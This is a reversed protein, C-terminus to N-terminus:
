RKKLELEKKIWNMAIGNEPKTRLKSRIFKSATSLVASVLEKESRNNDVVLMKGPSFVRQFAGINTQVENWSKKVIYEPVQRPRNANRELAVDLSTNVFVMHCDYGINKLMSVQRQVLTLDRGTADVILGLRGEVYKDLQNGTTTKARQRIINRFYEEEDPMKISLNAKKLGSEFANDSNVVKLGTGAFATQTVFTKGSGPGGALFFAKFIGPDYVGENLYERFERLPKAKLQKIIKNAIDKPEGGEAKIEIFGPKKRYYEIVPGTEKKYLAIRNKIIEPKDDARGRATLRRIVEQESVNLFVVKDIKINKNELDKVQQMYRPFGDFVFGNEAKDVADFVLKLVIDNPAFGGKGLNSLKKAIEGGKAKEKRLLEGPYIHEIDLEKKILESYTSKGSGPGGILIINM